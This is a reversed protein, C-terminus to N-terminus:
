PIKMFKHAQISINWKTNKKIYDVLLPTITNFNSWEPQLFLKCNHSVKKASKEAWEIDKIDFIIVKLEDARYYNEELPPFDKKPSLCIWDWVGTIKHNGSTEIYTKFQNKKLENCLIELNYISPEGGTIVIDRSPYKIADQIIEDVSTLKNFNSNWSTKTDCWHCGIDCGGLRLFYAPKGVHFGEGQISYFKDILPLHTGKYNDIETNNNL